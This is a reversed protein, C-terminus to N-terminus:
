RTPAISSREFETERWTVTMSSVMWRFLKNTMYSLKTVWNSLNGDSLSRIICVNLSNCLAKGFRVGKDPCKKRRLNVCNNTSFVDNTALGCGARAVSVLCPLMLSLDDVDIVDGFVSCALFVPLPLFM